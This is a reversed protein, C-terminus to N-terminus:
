VTIQESFLGSGGDQGFWDGIEVQFGRKKVANAVAFLYATDAKASILSVVERGLRNFPHVPLSLQLGDGRIFLAKNQCRVVARFHERSVSRLTMMGKNDDSMLGMDRLQEFLPEHIDAHFYSPADRCIFGGLDLRAALMLAEVDSRSLSTLVTLTRLSHSGPQCVEDVLVRAWLHQFDEAVARAAAEQWRLLWDPDLPRDSVAQVEITEALLDARLGIRRVNLARRLAQIDAELRVDRLAKTTSPVRLIDLPDEPAQEIITNFRVTSIFESDAPKDVIEGLSNFRKRGAHLDDLEALMGAIALRERERVQQVSKGSQRLSWPSLMATEGGGFLTNWLKDALKARLSNGETM